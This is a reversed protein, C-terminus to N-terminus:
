RSFRLTNSLATNDGKTVLILGHEFAICRIRRALPLLVPDADTEDLFEAHNLHAALRLFFGVCTDGFAPDGPPAGGWRVGDVPRHWFSTHVDEIVYLGGDTLAEFLVAFSGLQHAPLHSGDDVIIEFPGQAALASLDAPKGQDMRRIRIGGRELASRDRFDCGIVRGRPFYARWALLSRGGIEDETGGIGIELLRVRRYRFRRLAEAYAYGYRLGDPRDPRHKDTGAARMLWPLPLPLLSALAALGYRARFLLISKDLDSRADWDLLRKLLRKM